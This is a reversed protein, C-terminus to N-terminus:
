DCSRAWPYAGREALTQEFSEAGGGVNEKGRFYILRFFFFVLFSNRMLKTQRKVQCINFALNCTSIARGPDGLESHFRVRFKRQRFENGQTVSTDAVLASCPM